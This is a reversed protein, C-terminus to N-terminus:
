RDAYDPDAALDADVQAKIAKLEKVASEFDTGAVESMPTDSFISVTKGVYEDSEVQDLIWAAFDSYMIVRQRPVPEDDVAVKVDGRPPEVLLQGPRLIIYDLDTQKTIEEMKLMDNYPGRLNYIWLGNEPTIDDTKPTDATFGAKRVREAAMSGTVMLKTNGKKKMANIINTTGQSMLDTEPVEETPDVRPGYVSIVIEEGTLVAEISDRNYVDGKAVTLRPHPAHRVRQPRRAFAVVEHGRWLAQPILDNATRATAGIVVIKIGSPETGEHAQLDTAVLSAALVLGIAVCLKQLSRPVRNTHHVYMSGKTMTKERPRCAHFKHQYASCTLKASELVPLTAWLRFDIWCANRRPRFQIANLYSSAARAHKRKMLGDAVYFVAACM